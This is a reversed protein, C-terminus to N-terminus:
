NIKQLLIAAGKSGTQKKLFDVYNKLVKKVSKLADPHKLETMAVMLFAGRNCALVNKLTEPDFNDLLSKFFTEHKVMLKKTLMHVAPSEILNTADGPTFPQAVKKAM